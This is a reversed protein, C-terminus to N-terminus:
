IILLLNEGIKEISEPIYVARIENLNSFAGSLISAVKREKIESPVYIIKDKGLYSVISITKDSNITYIFDNEKLTESKLVKIDSLTFFLICTLIIIILMSWIKRM